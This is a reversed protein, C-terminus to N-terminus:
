KKINNNQKINLNKLTKQWDVSGRDDLHMTLGEYHKKVPFPIKVQSNNGSTIVDVEFGSKIMSSILISSRTVHGNGNLQIGFLVRM